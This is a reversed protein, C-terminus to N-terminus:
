NLKSIKYNQINKGLFWNKTKFAVIIRVFVLTTKVVPKRAFEAVFFPSVDLKRSYM